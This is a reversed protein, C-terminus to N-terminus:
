KRNKWAEWGGKLVFVPAIGNAKLREAVEHSLECSTSSCYVVVKQEPRWQDVFRPFLQEWDELNLLIAGPVHEAEYDKLSRADVWLVDSGWALVTQLEVEGPLLKDQTWAARRPHFAATLGAPVLAALLILLAQRLARM